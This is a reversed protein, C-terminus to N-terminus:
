SMFSVPLLEADVIAAANEYAKDLENLRYLLRALIFRHFHADPHDDLHRQLMAASRAPGDLSPLRILLQTARNVLIPSRNAEVREVMHDVAAAMEAESVAAEDKRRKLLLHDVVVMAVEPGDPVAELARRVTEQAEELKETARRTEGELDHQHGITLRAGALSAWGLDSDPVAEVFALLDGEAEAVEEETLERFLHRRALGRYLKAYIRKPSSAPVREWMDEGAGAVLQWYSPHNFLRAIGVLEEILALHPQPDTPNYRVRHRLIGLRERYLERAEDTTQPRIQLLAAEMKAVYEVNTPEKSVARGYHSRAKKFDGQALYEDGTRINRTADGRMQLGWLGGVIGLAVVVFGALILVFRTNVRSAM